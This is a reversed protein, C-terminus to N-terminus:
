LKEIEEWTYGKSDREQWTINMSDIKLWTLGDITVYLLLEATVIKKLINQIWQTFYTTLGRNTILINATFNGYSADYEYEGAVEDLFNKLSRETFSGAAIRSAAIVGRRKEEPDDSIFGLDLEEAMSDLGSSDATQPFRNKLINEIEEGLSQFGAAYCHLELLAASDEEDKYLGTSM